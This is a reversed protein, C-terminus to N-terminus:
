DKHYLLEEWPERKIPTKWNPGYQTYLVNDTNNPVYIDIDQWTLKKLPYIDVYNFTSMAFFNSLWSLCLDSWRHLYSTPRVKGLSELSLPDHLTEYFFLDIFNNKDTEICRSQCCGVSLIIDKSLEQSLINLVHYKNPYLVIIDGDTDWPILDGDRIIGLLTGEAVFHPINHKKLIPIVKKLLYRIREIDVTTKYQYNQTLDDLHLVCLAVIAILM